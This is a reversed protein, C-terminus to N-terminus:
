KGGTDPKTVNVTVDLFQSPNRQCVEELERLKIDQNSVKEIIDSLIYLFTASLTSAFIGNWVSDDVLNFILLIATLILIIMISVFKFVDFKSRFWSTKQTLPIFVEAGFIDSQDVNVVFLKILDNFSLSLHLCGLRFSGFIVTRIDRQISKIIKEPDKKFSIIIMDFSSHDIQENYINSSCLFCHNEFSIRYCVIKREGIIGNAIPSKITLNNWEKELDSNKAKRLDNYKKKVISLPSENNKLIGRKKVDFKFEIVHM